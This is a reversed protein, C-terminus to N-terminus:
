TTPYIIQYQCGILFAWDQLQETQRFKQCANKDFSKFYIFFYM